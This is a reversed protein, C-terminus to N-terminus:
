NVLHLKTKQKNYKRRYLFPVQVIERTTVVRNGEVVQTNLVVRRAMGSIMTEMNRIFDTLSGTFHQTYKRSALRKSAKLRGESKKYADNPHCMAVAYTITKETIQGDAIPPTEYFAVTLGGNSCPREAVTGTKSNVQDEFSRFHLYKIEQEIPLAAAVLSAVQNM